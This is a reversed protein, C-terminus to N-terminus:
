GERGAFSRFPARDIEVPGDILIDVTVVTLSGPTAPTIRIGGRDILYPFSEGDIKLDDVSVRAWEAIKAM